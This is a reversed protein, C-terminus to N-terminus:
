DGHVAQMIGLIEVNVCKVTYTQLNKPHDDCVPDQQYLKLGGREGTIRKAFEINRLQNTVEAHSIDRLVERQAYMILVQTQFYFLTQYRSIEVLHKVLKSDQM